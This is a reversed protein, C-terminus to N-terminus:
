FIPRKEGAKISMTLINDKPVLPCVYEKNYACYPNYAKNFDLLYEGNDSSEEVELYRGAEYTDFGNTKDKFPIFIVDDEQNLSKFGTLSYTPGDQGHFTFTGYRMKERKESGKSTLLQVTDPKSILKFEAYFAYDESPPFYQMGVFGEKQIEKLPSSPDNKFFDDLEKRREIIASEDYILTNDEEFTCSFFVFVLGIFFLTKTFNTMDKLSIMLFEEV